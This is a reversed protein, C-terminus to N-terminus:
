LSLGTFGKPVNSFQKDRESMNTIPRPWFLNLAPDNINLGSESEPSYFETHMYLLQSNDQLSQFGHAMGEPIVLMTSDQEDLEISISELFTKLDSRIDIITDWVKGRICRVLKTECQPPLQYHLGRVTGEKETASMNVQCIVRKKLIHKLEKSCFWRSFQGRHDGFISSRVLFAGKLKLPEITLKNDM